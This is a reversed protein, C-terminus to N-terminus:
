KNQYGGVIDLLRKLIVEFWEYFAVVFLGAGISAAAALYAYGISICARGGPDIALRSSIMLLFLIAGALGSLFFSAVLAHWDRGSKGHSRAISLFVSATCGLVACFVMLYFLIRHGVRSYFFVELDNLRLADVQQLWFSETRVHNGDLITTAPWCGDLYFYQHSMASDIYWLGITALAFVLGAVAMQLTRNM